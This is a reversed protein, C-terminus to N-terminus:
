APLEVNFLGQRGRYPIPEKLRSINELVWGFRGPSFDGMDRETWFCDAYGPKEEDIEPGFTGTGRCDVLTCTAVIVGYPLEDLWDEGLQEMAAIWAGYDEYGAREYVTIPRKAAHIALPGRHSTCWSRTEARKSGGAIASAWPQWLSLAKM